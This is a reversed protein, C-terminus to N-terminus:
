ERDRDMMSQIDDDPDFSDDDDYFDSSVVDDDDIPSAVPIPNFAPDSDSDPELISDTTNVATVPNRTTTDAFALVRMAVQPDQNPLNHEIFLMSHPTLRYLTISQSRGAVTITSKRYKFLNGERVLTELVDQWPINTKCGQMSQSILAKSMIPYICFANMLWLKTYHVEQQMLEEATPAKVPKNM